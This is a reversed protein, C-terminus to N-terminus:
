RFLRKGGTRSATGLVGGPLSTGQHGASGGERDKKYRRLAERLHDPTLPGRDREAVHYPDTEADDDAKAAAGDADTDKSPQILPESQSTDPASPQSQTESQSQSTSQPQNSPELSSTLSTTQASSQGGPTNLKRRKSEGTPLTPSAALWEAQVDRASEILEALFFKTYGNVIKVVLPHVSQGTTSNVIQPTVTLILETIYTYHLAHNQTSRSSSLSVRRVVHSRITTQRWKNYRAHQDETFADILM